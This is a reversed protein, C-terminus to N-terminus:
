KENKQDKDDKRLIGIILCSAGGGAILFCIM